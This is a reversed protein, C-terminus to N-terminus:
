IKRKTANGAANQKDKQKINDLYQKQVDSDLANWITKIQADSADTLGGRHALVAQRITEMKVM